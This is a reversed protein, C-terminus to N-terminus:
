RRSVVGVGAEVAGGTVTGRRGRRRAAAGRGSVMASTMGDVAVALLWSLGGLTVRLILVALRVSWLAVRVAMNVVFMVAATFVVVLM